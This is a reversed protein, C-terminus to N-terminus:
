PGGGFGGTAMNGSLTSGAVTVTGGNNFIGGGGISGGTNGSLTSNIVTLTGGADNFIGDGIGGVNGSLTCRMVVLAGQNRIGAGAGFGHQITFGSFTVPQTATGGTVLFVQVGTGGPTYGGDIAVPGTGPGSITVSTTVKLTGHQADNLLTITQPGVPLTFIITNAGSGPDNANSANVAQRLTCSVACNADTNDPTDNTTTVTYTQPGAARVPVTALAPALLALM